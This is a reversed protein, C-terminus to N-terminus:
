IDPLLRYTEAYYSLRRAMVAELLKGLTNLLSILRYAKPVTYDPKGPKRLALIMATKWRKPYYRLNVSTSFIKAIIGLIYKWTNKWVLTQLGDEGLATNGKAAKLAGGIEM